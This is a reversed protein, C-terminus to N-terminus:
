RAGERAPTAAAFPTLLLHVVLAAAALTLAWPFREAEVDLVEGSLNRTEMEDIAALVPAPEADARDIPLYVGGTREALRRLTEEQLRSVVVQGNEDQKYEPGEGAPLPIVSGKRTGVGLTHVVVREQELREILTDWGGGHDEGDSILVIARHRESEPPFLDLGDRLAPALQTGPEPLSGSYVTDLVLDIVAADLTLPALVLRAGEAQVLAVRHAPMAAVMRRVLSKAIGMRSPPVDRAEMSLSSDLIFVVDVGRREVREKRSGWRPQALALALALVAIGLATLSVALRRRSLRLDLRGWLPAAAWARADALRRRWLWLAALAVVPALLLLWLAEPRAFSM